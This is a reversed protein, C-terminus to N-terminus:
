AGVGREEFVCVDWCRHQNEKRDDAPVWRLLWKGQFIRDVVGEGCKATKRQEAMNGREEMLIIKNAKSRNKDM